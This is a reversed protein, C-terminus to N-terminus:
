FTATAVYVVTTSYTGTATLATINGLFEFDFVNTDVPGTSSAIANTTGSIIDEGPDFAYNTGSYNTDLSIGTGSNVAINLGFQETGPNSAAGTAGIATIENVGNSHTLTDGTYQIVVGNLANTAVEGQHSATNGTSTTLVGLDVTTNGPSGCSAGTAYICFTLTEQVRATVDISEATSFALGGDDVLTTNGTDSYTYVRSFYETNSSSPNTVASTFTVVVETDAAVASVASTLTVDIVNDGAGSTTVTSVTQSAGGVTVTTNGQAISAGSFGAPATCATGPFPDNSCVEFTFSGLDQGGTETEFSYQYTVSSASAVSSSITLERNNLQAAGVGAPLMTAVVLVAVQLVNVFRGAATRNLLKKDSKTNM